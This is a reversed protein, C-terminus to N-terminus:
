IKLMEKNHAHYGSWSHYKELQWLHTLEHVIVLLNVSVGKQYTVKRNYNVHATTRMKRFNHGRYIFKFHRALKKSLKDIDKKGIFILEENDFLEREIQYFRLRFGKKQYDKLM